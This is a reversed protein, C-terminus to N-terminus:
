KSHAMQTSMNIQFPLDTAFLTLAFIHKTRYSKIQSYESRFLKIDASAATAKFVGANYVKTLQPELRSM